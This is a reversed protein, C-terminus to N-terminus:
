QKEGAIVLEVDADGVRIHFLLEVLLRQGRRLRTETPIIPGVASTIFFIWGRFTLDYLLVIADDHGCGGFVGFFLM